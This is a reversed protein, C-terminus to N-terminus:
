SSACFAFARLTHSEVPDFNFGSARWRRSNSPHPASTRLLVGITGEGDEIAGGGVLRENNRCKASATGSTVPDVTIAAGGRKVIKEVRDPRAPRACFAFARLLQPDAFDNNVAKALWRRSRTPDPASATLLASADNTGTGEAGGGVLREDSRCNTTDKGSETPPVEAATGGQRVIVGIRDRRASKACMAYATLGHATTGDNNFGRALWRRANNPDPGSARLFVVLFGAGEGIAGGGILTEGRRCKAVAQGSLNPPISVETGTRKTVVGIKDAAPAAPEAPAAPAASIATLGAVSLAVCLGAALRSRRHNM